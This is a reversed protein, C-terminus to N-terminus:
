KSLMLALAGQLSFACWEQSTRQCSSEKQSSSLKLAAFDVQKSSSHLKDSPRLVMLKLYCSHYQALCSKKEPFAQLAVVHDTKGSYQITGFLTGFAPEEWPKSDRLHLLSTDSDPTLLLCLVTKFNRSFDRARCGTRFKRVKLMLWSEKGQTRQAM